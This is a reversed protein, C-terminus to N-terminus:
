ISLPLIKEVVSKDFNVKQVSASYFSTLNKKMSAYNIVSADGMLILGEAFLLHSLALSNRGMNLLIWRGNIDKVEILFSLYDM